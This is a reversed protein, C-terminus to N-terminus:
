RPTWVKKCAKGFRAHKEGFMELSLKPFAIALTVNWFNQRKQSILKALAKRWHYAIDGDTKSIFDSWKVSSGRPRSYASFIV